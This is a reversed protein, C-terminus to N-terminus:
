LEVRAKVKQRPHQPERDGKVILGWTVETVVSSTGVRVGRRGTKM